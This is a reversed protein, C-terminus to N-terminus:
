VVATSRGGSTSNIISRVNPNGSLLLSYILLANEALPVTDQADFM